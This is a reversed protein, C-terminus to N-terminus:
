DKVRPKEQHRPTKTTYWKTQAQRQHYKDNTNAGAHVSIGCGVEIGLNSGNQLLITQSAM